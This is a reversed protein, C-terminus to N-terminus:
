RVKLKMSMGSHITCVISYTGRKKLTRSYTGSRKFPSSFKQPGKVVKVNHPAEGVWKWTVKTGKKVTVPRPTFVNDDVKITKTAALAPVAAVALGATALLAIPKRM